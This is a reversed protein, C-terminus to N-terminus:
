DDHGKEKGTGVICCIPDDLLEMIVKIREEIRLVDAQHAALDLKEAALRDEIVRLMSAATKREKKQETKQEM